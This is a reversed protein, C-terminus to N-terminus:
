EVAGHPKCFAFCFSIERFLIASSKLKIFLSASHIFFMWNSMPAFFFFIYVHFDPLSRPIKSNKEPRATVPLLCSCSATLLSAHM